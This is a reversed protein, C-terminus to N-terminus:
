TLCPELRKEALQYLRLQENVPPVLYAGKVRGLSHGIWYEILSENFGVDNVRSMKLTTSFFKRLVHSSVIWGLGAKRSLRALFDNVNQLTCPIIRSTPELGDRNSLYEKLAQTAMRGFFTDFFGVSKEKGSLLKLHIYETNDKLQKEISDGQLGTSTGYVLRLLDSVALGSQAQCLVYAKHMPMDASKVLKGLDELTLPPKVKVPWATPTSDPKLERYNARYFSRIAYHAQACSNRAYQDKLIAFWQELKEEAKRQIFVDDSGSEMRRKKILQDPNLGTFDCFKQLWRIYARRTNPSDAKTKLRTLWRKVSDQELDM